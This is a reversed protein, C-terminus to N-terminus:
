QSPPPGSVIESVKTLQASTGRVALARTNFVTFLRNVQVDRRIQHTLEQVQTPTLSSNWHFIRIGDDPAGPMKHEDGDSGQEQKALQPILWESVGAQNPPAQLVIAKRATYNFLRNVEVVQRLVTIMEQIDRPKAAPDLYFIDVKNGDAATFQHLKPAGGLEPSETKKADLENVIWDVIALQEPSASITLTPSAPDVPLEPTVRAVQKITTVMENYSNDSQINVFHFIRIEGQASQAFAPAAALLVALQV